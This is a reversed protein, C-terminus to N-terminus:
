SFLASRRDIDRRGVGWPGCTTCFAERGVTPPLAGRMSPIYIYLGIVPSHLNPATGLKGCTGPVKVRAPASSSNIASIQNLCIVKYVSIIFYDYWRGNISCWSHPSPSNKSFLLM